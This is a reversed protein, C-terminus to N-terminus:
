KIARIFIHGLVKWLLPMTEQSFYLGPHVFFFTPNCEDVPNQSTVGSRVGNQDHANKGFETLYSCKLKM